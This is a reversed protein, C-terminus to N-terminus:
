GGIVEWQLSFIALICFVANISHATVKFHGHLMSCPLCIFRGRVLYVCPLCIFRGRVPLCMYMYIYM